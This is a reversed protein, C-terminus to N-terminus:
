VLSNNSKGNQKNPVPMMGPRTHNESVTVKLGEPHNKEQRLYNEGM